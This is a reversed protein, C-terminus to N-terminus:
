RKALGPHKRSRAKLIYAYIEDHSFPKITECLGPHKLSRAKLVGHTCCKVFCPDERTCSKVVRSSGQETGASAQLTRATFSDHRNGGKEHAGSSKISRTVSANDVLEAHTFSLARGHFHLHLRPSQRPPLM